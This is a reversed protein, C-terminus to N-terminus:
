FSPGAASRGLAELLKQHANGLKAEPSKWNTTQFLAKTPTNAGCFNAFTGFRSKVVVWLGSNWKVLVGCVLVRVHPLFVSFSCLQKPQLLLAGEGAPKAWIRSKFATMGPSAQSKSWSETRRTEIIPWLPYLLSICLLLSAQTKCSCEAKHCTLKSPGPLSEPLHKIRCAGSTKHHGGPPRRLDPM